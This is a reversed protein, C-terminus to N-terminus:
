ILDFIIIVILFFLSVSIITIGSNDKKLVSDTPDLPNYMIQEKEGIPQKHTTGGRKVTRYAKGDVFFEVVSFYFTRGRSGRNKKYDVVTGETEVFSMKNVKKYHTYQMRIGIFLLGLVFVIAIIM